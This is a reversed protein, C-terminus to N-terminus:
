SNGGEIIGSIPSTAAQFAGLAAKGFGKYPHRTQLDTLGSGALDVGSNFNEGIKTTIDV